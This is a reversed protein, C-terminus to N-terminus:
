SGKFESPSKGSYKKFVKSFYARDSFGLTYAVNEVTENEQRLMRIAMNIKFQNVYETFNVGALRKFFRSFYSPNLHLYHAMDVSTVMEDVHEQLYQDIAQLRLDREEEKGGPALSHRVFLGRLERRTLQVAEAARVALGLHTYFGEGVQGNTEYALQRVLDACAEKVLRPPLRDAAVRQSMASVALDIWSGDNEELALSLLGREKDFKGDAAPDFPAPEASVAAAGASGYFSQDRCATMRRHAAGIQALPVAEPWYFGLVDIKLYQKTKERVTEMFRLMDAEAGDAKGRSPSGEAEGPGAANWILYVEYDKTMFPTVPASVPATGADACIETVINFVAYQILHMDEYGYREAVSAADLHLFGVRFFPLKWSIGLREGFQMTGTLGGGGALLEKLFSTKLVDKNREIDQRIVYREMRESRARFQDMAKRLSVRLQEASLEDKILYDDAEMQFARKSYQFEEYCTLFILRVEPKITRFAQALELGDMGPMGIDTVVLDPLATQFRELAQESTSASATLELELDLQKLLQAVYDLMPVDDDILMVSIM